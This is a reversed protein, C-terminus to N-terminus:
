INAYGQWPIEVELTCGQGPASTVKMHGSYFEARSQINRLGIGNPKLQSDFGVGDDAILLHINKHLLKLEITVLHARAHKLINNLQEQIIRYLSIKVKNPLSDLEDKDSFRLQTKISSIRINESLDKISETFTGREFSPSTLTHSLNRIETIANLIAQKTRNLFTEQLDANTSAVELSLKAYTLLQNVNDHLERGIFNGEKEEAEITTPTIERQKELQQKTIVETINTSIGGVAYIAGQQNRLPFKISYFQNPQGNIEAEEEIEILRGEKIVRHDNQSHQFAYTQPFVDFVTKGIAEGGNLNHLKEFQKNVLTYRGDLDKVYIVSSTNDVISQQLKRTELLSIEAKRRSKLNRWLAIFFATLILILIAILALYFLIFDYNSKANAKTRLKLLHKEEVQISDLLNDIRKTRSIGAKTMIFAQAQQFGQTNRLEISRQAARIKDAVLSKLRQVRAQQALNDQTLVELENFHVFLSQKDSVLAELFASDGTIVYARVGSELGKTHKSIEAAHQLADKTHEVWRSTDEHVLNNEYTKIALTIIGTIILLFVLLLKQEFSKSSM